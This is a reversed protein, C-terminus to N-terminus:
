AHARRTSPSSKSWPTRRTRRSRRAPSCTSGRASLRWGRRSRRARADQLRYEAGVLPRVSRPFGSLFVRVTGGTPFDVAGDSPVVHREPHPGVCSCARARRPLALACLTVLALTLGFSFTPRMLSAHCAGRARPLGVGDGGGKARLATAGQSVGRCWAAQSHGGGNMAIPDALPHGAGKSGQLGLAGGDVAVSLSLAVLARVFASRGVDPAARTQVWQGRHRLRSWSRVVARVLGLGGTLGPQERGSRRGEADGEDADAVCAAVM